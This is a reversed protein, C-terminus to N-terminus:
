LFCSFALSGGPLMCFEETTISDDDLKRETVMVDRKNMYKRTIMGSARLGLPLFCVMSVASYATLNKLHFTTIRFTRQKPTNRYQIDM